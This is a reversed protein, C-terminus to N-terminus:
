ILRYYIELKVVINVESIFLNRIERVNLKIVLFIAACEEDEVTYYIFELQTSLVKHTMRLHKCFIVYKCIYDLFHLQVTTRTLFLTRLQGTNQRM